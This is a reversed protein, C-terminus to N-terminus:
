IGLRWRVWSERLDAWRETDLASSKWDPGMFHTLQREWRWVHFRRGHLQQGHMDDLTRLYAADRFELAKLALRSPSWVAFRAVHGAWECVKRMALADWREINYKARYANMTRQTDAMYEDISDGDGVRFRYVQRYMADEAGRLHQLHVRSLHASGINYLLAPVVFKHLAALRKQLSCAKNTLINRHKHFAAWAPSMRLEARCDENRIGQM